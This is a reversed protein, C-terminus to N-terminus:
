ESREEEERGNVLAPTGYKPPQGLQELLANVERKLEVMRHERGVFIQNLREVHAVQKKLAAVAKQRARDLEISHLGFAIDGAVEQFLEQVELALFEAPTYVSLLGYVTGRHEFRTTLADRTTVKDALPCDGCSSALDETVVVGPQALAKRACDPLENRNLWEAMPQFDKGFGSEAHMQVKGADDVLTIWASSDGLTEAVINCTSQILADRDKEQSILQNVSRITQLVFNLNKLEKERQKRESIDMLTVVCGIVENKERDLLSGASILLTFQLGDARSLQVERNQICLGRLIHDLSFPEGEEAARNQESVVRLPFLADFPKLLPNQGCLQHAM